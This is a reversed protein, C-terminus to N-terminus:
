PSEQVRPVLAFEGSLRQLVTTHRSVLAPAFEGRAAVTEAEDAVAGDEFAAVQGIEDDPLVGADHDHSKAEVVVGNGSAGGGGDAGLDAGVEPAELVRQRVSAEYHDLREPVRIRPRARRGDDVTPHVVAAPM